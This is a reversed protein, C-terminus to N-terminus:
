DDNGRLFHREFQEFSNTRHKAIRISDRLIGNTAIRRELSSRIGEIVKETEQAKDEITANLVDDKDFASIFGWKQLLREIAQIM